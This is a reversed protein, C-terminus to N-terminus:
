QIPDDTLFVFVADSLSVGRAQINELALDFTEGAAVYGDSVGIWKNNFERLLWEWNNELWDSEVKNM